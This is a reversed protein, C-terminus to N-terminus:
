GPPLGPYFRSVVPCSAAAGVATPLSVVTLSKQRLPEFALVDVISPALPRRDRGASHIEPNLALAALVISLGPAKLM